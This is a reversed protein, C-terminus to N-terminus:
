EEAHRAQTQEIEHCGEASIMGNLPKDADLSSVLLHDLGILQVVGGEVDFHEVAANAVDGVTAGAPFCVEAAKSGSFGLALRAEIGGGRAVAAAQLCVCPARLGPGAICNRGAAEPQLRPDSRMEEALCPLARRDSRVAALAV